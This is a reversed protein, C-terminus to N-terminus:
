KELEIEIPLKKSSKARIWSLLPFYHQKISFRPNEFLTEVRQYLAELKALRATAGRAKAALVLGDIVTEEFELLGDRKKLHYKSKKAEPAILAYNGLDFHCILFLIEAYNRLDTRIGAVTFQQIKLIWKLAKSPESFCLYLHAIQFCLAILRNGSIKSGFRELGEAISAVIRNVKEKDLLQLAM